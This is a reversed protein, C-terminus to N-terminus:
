HLEDKEEKLILSMNQISYKDVFTLVDPLEVVELTKPYILQLVRQLIREEDHDTVTESRIPSHHYLLLWFSYFYRNYLLDDSDKKLYTMFDELTKIQNIEYAELFKNMIDAYIGAVTKQYTEQESEAQATLFSDIEHERRESIIYQEAFLTLPSWIPNEEVKLFPHLVAKMLNPSLPKSLITSVIDQDFNFSQIGTYYLTEQATTLATTRLNVTLKILDAHEYHVNELERAIRTILKLSKEQDKLDGSYIMDRTEQIFRQLAKFEEDERELRELIEDLLKKYREFTTESVISRRIENEMNRIREQLTDVAIEMEGIQRIASHFEGKKIQQKLLLQNISIQFENYFEKTAFLLELGDEDLTYYQTQTKADFGNDKLISYEIVEQEKTEWNFFSYSRKKGTTPRFNTILMRSITEMTSFNIHYTDRTMESLFRSLDKVGTEYQRALRREFFFLLTLMGLGQMDIRVGNLDVTKKNQLEVLSDMLAIRRMRERYGSTLESKNIFM